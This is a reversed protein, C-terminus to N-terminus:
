PLQGAHERPAPLARQRAIQELLRRASDHGARMFSPWDRRDAFQEYFHAGRVRDYSVPHLLRLRAGLARARERALELYVSYRLQGSARLISWRRELWGSVDEGDFNRPMYCNVGIVLDLPEYEALPTTPFIDVVGGDGYLHEGIRVPQVFLPISIAARVAKALPLAPTRTTSAHEVTNLDVNWLVVSLPIQLQGLTMNGFRKAFTREVAEGRLLGGFGRFARLPARALAGWAPDIYDRTRLRLWFQAMEEAPLGAAWLSAFLMSGSCASLVVVDLGAEELARRVGCLAATAGSGGSAVLGIRKGELAKVRFPRLPAFVPQGSGDAPLGFPSIARALRVALGADAELGRALDGVWSTAAFFLRLNNPELADSLRPMETM